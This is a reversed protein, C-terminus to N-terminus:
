YRPGGGWRLNLGAKVVNKNEKIDFNTAVPGGLFSQNRTGMGYYDYEVFGTLWDTFAYEGGVGVTWGGRTESGTLAIGPTANLFWIYDDKEWAGGGKVYGLFRDWAYGVRGTVSALNKINSQDLYGTTLFALNNVADATDLGAAVILHRATTPHEADLAVVVPHARLGAM